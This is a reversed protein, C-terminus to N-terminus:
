KNMSKMVAGVIGTLIAGGGAGNIASGLLTGRSAVLMEKVSTPM